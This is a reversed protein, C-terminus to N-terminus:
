GSIYNLANFFDDYHDIIADPELQAVPVKSYGFSVCISKLGAKRAALIDNSSDGVMIAKKADCGLMELTSSIHRPDPKQWDFSDGGVIVDFYDVLGIENVLKTTLSMVKNTCLGLPIGQNSLKKLINIAGPFIITKQAINKSYFKLFEELIGKLENENPLTGTETFGKIILAKAGDGVMHRVNDLDIEPRKNHRLVHNLASSLDRASDVLTGDLDFIITSPSFSM